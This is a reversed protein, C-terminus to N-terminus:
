HTVRGLRAKETRLQAKEARLQAKEDSKYRKDLNLQVMEERLLGAEASTKIETAISALRVDFAEIDKEVENIKTEVM